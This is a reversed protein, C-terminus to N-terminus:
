DSEIKDLYELVKEEAIRKAKDDIQKDIAELEEKKTKEKYRDISTIVAIAFIIAIFGSIIAIENLRSFLPHETIGNFILVVGTSILASSLTTKVFGYTWITRKWPICETLPKSLKDREMGSNSLLKSLIM